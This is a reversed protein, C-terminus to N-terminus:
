GVALKATAPDTSEVTDAFIDPENGKRERGFNETIAKRLLSRMLPLDVVPPEGIATREQETMSEWVAFPEEGTVYPQYKKLGKSIRNQISKLSQAVLIPPEQLDHVHVDDIRLVGLADTLIDWVRPPNPHALIYTNGRLPSDMLKCFSNVVWDVPILNLTSEHDCIVNVPLSVEGNSANRKRFMQAVVHLSSMFGYYGDYGNIEGTQSDGVVISLRYTNYPIGSNAVLKEADAKSREYPNQAEGQVYATSVYHFERVGLVKALELMAQTGQYNTRYIEEAREEDFKVLGASHVIKDVGLDRLHAIGEDDLGAGPADLDGAIVQSGPVPIDNRGAPNRVLCYVKERRSLAEFLPKGVSGTVGTLLISM